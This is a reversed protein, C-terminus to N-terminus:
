PIQMWNQMGNIYGPVDIPMNNLKNSGALSISGADITILEDATLIDDLNLSDLNFSFNNM